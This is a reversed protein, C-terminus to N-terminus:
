MQDTEAVPGGEHDIRGPEGLVLTPQGGVVAPPDRPRSVGVGMGVVDRAARGQGDVTCDEHRRGSGPQFVRMPADLGALVELDGLAEGQAGDRRRAVRRVM